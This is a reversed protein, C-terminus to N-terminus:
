RPLHVGQCQGGPSFVQTPQRQQPRQHMRGAAPEKPGGLCGGALDCMADTGRVAESLLTQHTRCARVTLLSECSVGAHHLNWSQRKLTALVASISLHRTSDYLSHCASHLGPVLGKHMFWLPMIRCLMCSRLPPAAYYSSPRVHTGAPWNASVHGSAHGALRSRGTSHLSTDMPTVRGSSGEALM